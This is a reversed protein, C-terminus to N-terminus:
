YCGSPAMWASFQGLSADWERAWTLNQKSNETTLLGAAEVAELAEFYQELSPEDAGGSQIFAKLLGYFFDKTEAFSHTCKADESFTEKITNLTKQSLELYSPKKTLASLFVAELHHGGVASLTSSRGSASRNSFTYLQYPVGTAPHHADAALLDAM